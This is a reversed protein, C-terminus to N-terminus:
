VRPATAASFAVAVQGQHCLQEALEHLAVVHTM